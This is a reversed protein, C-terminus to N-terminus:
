RTGAQSSFRGVTLRDQSEIQRGPGPTWHCSGSKPAASRGAGVPRDCRRRVRPAAGAQTAGVRVIPIGPPPCQGGPTSVCGPAAPRIQGATNTRGHYFRRRTQLAGCHRTSSQDAVPALARPGNVGRSRPAEAAAVQATPTLWRGTEARRRDARLVGLFMSPTPVKLQGFRSSFTVTSLSWPPSRQRGHRSLLLCFSRRTDM